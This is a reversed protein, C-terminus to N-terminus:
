ETLQAIRHALAPLAKEFKVGYWHSDDDMTLRITEVTYDAAIAASDFISAGRMYAGTFSSAYVDGTGHSMRPLKPNFYYATEQKACDYVAVGLKDEEFSVGTLVVNRCGLKALKRLLSEIYDVGYETRFETGTMLCAETINPLIIDAAACLRAMHSPFDEAFGAYLKGGDAMAPDVIVAGDNALHRDIISLILDVQRPSGLYGTYICDFKLAEKVWHDSIPAIDDTLDRFTWGAKFATHTSLVATPIVATELGCASIIPLAVTLSCKGYCALDQITLVKPDKMDKGGAGFAANEENRSKYDRARHGDLASPAFRGKQM